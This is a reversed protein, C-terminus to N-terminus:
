KNMQGAISSYRARAGAWSPSLHDMIGGRTGVYWEAEACLHALNPPSMTWGNIDLLAVAGVVTLASSSSLGAGIPVRFPRKGVVLADMGKIGPGFRQCLTQAVGKIYNGWDGTPGSPISPTALFQREEFRDPELNRLVVQANDRPRALLVIDRDLAIPLVFGHNYDTHEGILNVRGPARYIHVPGPGYALKFVELAESYRRVQADLFSENGDGSYIENLWNILNSNEM